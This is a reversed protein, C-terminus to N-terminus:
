EIPTSDADSRSSASCRLCYSREGIRCDENRVVFGGGIEFCWNLGFGKENAGDAADRSGQDMEWGM